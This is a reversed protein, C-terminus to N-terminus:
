RRPISQYVSPIAGVVGGASLLGMANGATSASQQKLYADLLGKIAKDADAGQPITLFDALEKYYRDQMATMDAPSTAMTRQVLRQLGGIPKGQMFEGLMGPATINDISEKVMARAGTKSNQAIGAKLQLARGAEDLQAFLARAPDDGIVAAIKDRASRSSLQKLGAIAERADMNPDSFATRVNALVDDINARIGEAVSRKEANGMGRMAEKVADRTMSTSLLKSGLERAQISRIPGAATNLADAYQPVAQKLADRLKGSLNQSAIGIPTQGGLAGQGEGSKAAQNLSRTIYDVQRVDPMRSFTVTGDDAINALIQRSQHGGLRMLENASAIHKGSVRKLLDEVARGADSSYDIPLDYAANYAASRAASSGERIARNGSLLGGPAGGLSKNLATNLTKNAMAARNGVANLASSAAPGGRQIATDLLGVTAPGADAVMRTPGAAMFANENQPSAINDAILSRQLIDGTPRSLGMKALAKNANMANIGSTVAKGVGKAVVPAAVGFASGVMGGVAADKLADVGTRDSRLYADSAGLAAGGAAGTGLIAARSANGLMPAVKGAIGVGSALGGGLQLATSTKPNNKEFVRDRARQYDLAETYSPGGPMISSTLANLEDLQGGILPVGKAFQRISDGIASSVPSEKKEKVVYAEALSKMKATDKASMAKLYENRIDTLSRKDDPLADLELSVGSKEDPIDDLNLGAM